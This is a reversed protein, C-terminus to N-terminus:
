DLHIDAACKCHNVGDNASSSNMRCYVPLIWHAQPRKASEKKENIFGKYRKKIKLKHKSKINCWIVNSLWTWLETWM